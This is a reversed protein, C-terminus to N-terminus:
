ENEAEAQEDDGADQEIGLEERLRAERAYRRYIAILDRQAGARRHVIGRM